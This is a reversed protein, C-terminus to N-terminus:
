TKPYDATSETGANWRLTEDHCAKLREPTDPTEGTTIWFRESFFPHASRHSLTVKEGPSYYSYCELRADIVQGSDLRVEAMPRNVAPRLMRTIEGHVLPRRTSVVAYICAMIVAMSVFAASIPFSAPIFPFKENRFVAIFWFLIAISYGLAISAFVDSAGDMERDYTGGGMDISDMAWALGASVLAAILAIRWWQLWKLESFGIFVPIGIILILPYIEIAMLVAFFLSGNLAADILIVIFPAILFGVVERRM